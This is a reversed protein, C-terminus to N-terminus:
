DAWLTVYTYDFDVIHYRKDGEGFVCGPGFLSEHHGNSLTWEPWTKTVGDATQTVLQTTITLDEVPGMHDGLQSKMTELAAFMSDGQRTTGVGQSYGEGGDVVLVM